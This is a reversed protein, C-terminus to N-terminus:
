AEREMWNSSLFHKSITKIEPKEGNLYAKIRIRKNEVIIAFPVCLLSIIKMMILIISEM